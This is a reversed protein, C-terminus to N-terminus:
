LLVKTQMNCVISYLLLRLTGTEETSHGSQSVFVEGEMACNGNVRIKQQRLREDQIKYLV